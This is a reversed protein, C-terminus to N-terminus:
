DDEGDSVIRAAFKREWWDSLAPPFLNGFRILLVMAWPFTISHKRRAIGAVIKRAANEASMELPKAGRHRAAMPTTIFGPCVVTVGIGHPKLGGRLAVGWARLGAKSASYAALAPQPRLAALSSILVIRGARRQVMHPVIPEVTNMAGILNVEIQRRSARDVGDPGLGSTVGANVILLDVPYREDFRLLAEAMYSRDRVDVIESIVTAGAARAREATAGLRAQDRGLLLLSVGPAAYRQALAAGLGGTAGTIVINM